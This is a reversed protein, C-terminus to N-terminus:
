EIFGGSYGIARMEAETKGLVLIETYETCNAENDLLCRVQAGGQSLKGYMKGM